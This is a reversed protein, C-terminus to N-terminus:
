RERDGCGVVLIDGCCAVLIDGCAVLVEGDNCEGCVRVLFLRPLAPHSPGDLAVARRGDEEVVVGVGLRM